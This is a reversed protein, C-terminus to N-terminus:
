SGTCPLAGSMAPWFLALGSAAIWLKPMASERDNSRSSSARRSSRAISRASASFRVASRASAPLSVTDVTPMPSATRAASCRKVAYRSPDLILHHPVVQRLVLELAREGLLLCLDAEPHRQTARDGSLHHRARPKVPEQEVHLM